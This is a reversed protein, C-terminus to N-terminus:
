KKIKTRKKRSDNRKRRGHKKVEENLRERVQLPHVGAEYDRDSIESLQEQAFEIFSQAYAINHQLDDFDPNKSCDFYQEAHQIRHQAQSILFIADRVYNTRFHIASNRRDITLQAQFAAEEKATRKKEKFGRKKVAVRGRWPLLKM